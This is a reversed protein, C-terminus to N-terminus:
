AVKKVERDDDRVVAQVYNNIYRKNGIIKSATKVLNKINKYKAAEEKVSEAVKADVGQVIKVIADVAEKYNKTGEEVGAIITSLATGRRKAMVSTVGNGVLSLLLAVGTAVLGGGPAITNVLPAVDKVGQSVGGLVDGLRTHTKGDEGQYTELSGCGVVFLVLLVITAYKFNM